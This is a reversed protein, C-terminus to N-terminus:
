LKSGAQSEREEGRERGRGQKCERDRLSFLYVNLFHFFFEKNKPGIPFGATPQPQYVGARGLAVKDGGSRKMM